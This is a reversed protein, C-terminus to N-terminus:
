ARHELPIRIWNINNHGFMKVSQFEKQKNKEICIEIDIENTEILINEWLKGNFIHQVAFTSTKTVVIGVWINICHATWNCMRIHPEFIAHTTFLKHIFRTYHKTIIGDYSHTHPCACKPKENQKSKYNVLQRIWRIRYLHLNTPLVHPITSFKM